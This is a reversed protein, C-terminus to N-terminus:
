DTMFRRSGDECWRLASQWRGYGAVMDLHSGGPIVDVDFKDGYLVSAPPDCYPDDVACVLRTAAISTAPVAEHAGDAFSFERLEPTEALFKPSPPAVLALRDVPLRVSGIGALQIWAACSLSHAIVVLEDAHDRDLSAEIVELWEKLAPRGPNPLQPYVVEHGRETLREALWWQWHGIPRENQWGHLIVFRRSVDGPAPPTLAM